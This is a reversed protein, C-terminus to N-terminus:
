CGGYEENAEVSSDFIMKLIMSCLGVSTPISVPRQHGCPTENVCSEKSYRNLHKMYKM